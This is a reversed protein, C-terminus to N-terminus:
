TPYKAIYIYTRGFSVEEKTQKIPIELPGSMNEKDLQWPKKNKHKQSKEQRM